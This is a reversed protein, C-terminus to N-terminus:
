SSTINSAIPEQYDRVPGHDRVDSSGNNVEKYWDFVCSTSNKAKNQIVLHHQPELSNM